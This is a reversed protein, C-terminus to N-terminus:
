AQKCKYIILQKKKGNFTIDYKAAYRECINALIRLTYVSPTLLKPDNACGFVDAFVGGIHCGVNRKSSENLLDDMYISFLNPSIIGRQKVHNAVNFYSSVNTEWRIRNLFLRCYLPCINRDLLTRFLKCNIIILLKPLMLCYVM